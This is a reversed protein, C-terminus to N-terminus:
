RGRRGRPRGGAFLDRGADGGSTDSLRGDGGALRGAAACPDARRAARGAGPGGSQGRGRIRDRGGRLSLRGAGAAPALGPPIPGAVPLRLGAWLADWPVVTALAEGVSSLYEAALWEARDVVPAPVLPVGSPVALVPKLDSRPAGEGLVIGPMLRHGFPVVVGTGRHAGAFAGAGFTYAADGTRLPLDLAVLLPRGASTRTLPSNPSRHLACPVLWVRSSM